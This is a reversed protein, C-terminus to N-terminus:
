NGTAPAQWSRARSGSLDRPQGTSGGVINLLTSKGSGSPGLLVAMEGTELTLDVGNLARVEVEGTTYVKTLGSIEFVPAPVPDPEQMMRPISAWGGPCDKIGTM